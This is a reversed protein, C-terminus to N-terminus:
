GLLARLIGMLGVTVSVGLSEQVLLASLEAEELIRTM